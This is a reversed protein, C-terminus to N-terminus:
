SRTRSAHPDEDFNDPRRRATPQTPSSRFARLALFGVLAATGFVVGPRQRTFEAADEYLDAASKQELSKSYQEVRDAVGRVLEAIQPTDAAFEKAARKASHAVSNMVTAGRAVQQDLMQQLPAVPSDNHGPSMGIGERSRQDLEEPFRQARQSDNSM